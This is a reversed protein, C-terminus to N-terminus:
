AEQIRGPTASLSGDLGRTQRFRLALEPGVGLALFIAELLATKGSGNDGVIVNIRSCDAIQLRQFCRFNRIDIDHIMRYATSIYPRALSPIMAQGGRACLM